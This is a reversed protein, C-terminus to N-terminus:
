LLSQVIKKAAQWDKARNVLKHVPDQNYPTDMLIVPIECEEAINCANDHKDEFFLDVRHQKVASIKDHTGILEIHDYPVKTKNFWDTTLNLYETPRASIYYLEHENTWETLIQHADIALEAQAYINPEHIKMWKWFDEKTVGLATSLEYEKIDHITLEKKFHENLYPIFTAPDTVTGDIDIGFRKKNM